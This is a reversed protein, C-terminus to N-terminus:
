IILNKLQIFIPSLNHSHSKRLKRQHENYFMHDWKRALLMNSGQTISPSRERMLKDESTENKFRPPSSLM